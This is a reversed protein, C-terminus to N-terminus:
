GKTITEDLSLLVNAVTTWAALEVPDLASDVAFSGVELLAAADDPSAAFRARESEYLDLVADREADDPRRGTVLRFALESREDVADPSQTVIRQALAKAAEVFQPDNMLTLAQLPTNTRARRVVCAERTPADFVAMNPPPATRKWFTYLSRRYLAEGEDPMFTRTDSDPYAVAEWLGSPQYPRVSPGGLREVLLGSVALAQDRIMEADLRFRPGRSLLRNRPDRDLKRPSVTSSQQYTASSVILRHLAKLDWGSEVFEVALWDLLEPHSPWRGRTGFDESSAVLGVGFYQQWVRNVIVRATLPHEGSVLWRAFDLRTAREGERKLPPLFAPTGPAVEDGPQDYQGRKLVFAPRMRDAPREQMVLTRPLTSEFGAAEERASELEEYLARMEPSHRRRYHAQLAAREDEDRDHAPKVLLDTVLTEDFGDENKEAEFAFGYGGAYNVIKMLITNEGPRLEVTIRDQGPAAPRAVENEHVLEGNLWVKIADDSGLSLALTREDPSEIVRYAYTACQEGELENVVGDAFGTREIWAVAGEHYTTELNVSGNQTFAREPDFAADFANSDDPATFPGATWWAGSHIPGLTAHLADEESISLRVRGIAHQPFGTEHILTFRLETGGEFGFPERPTFVAVRRERKSEGDVAWGNTSDIVGDLTFDVLYPGNMQEHDAYAAVFEVRQTETLDAKSIALLEFESLVYNANYARGPGHYPLSDHTLAEVRVATIDTADTETVILYRDTPPNYGEALISHDDLETLTAGETSLATIPDLTRWRRAARDHNAAEWDSQAADIAPDPATFTTELSDIRAQMSELTAQDDPTPAVVVPVPTAINLDMANEEINNFFAFLEYFERQTLPDFKHDHCAACGATLGMWVTSTTEVRDVAYKMLYEANIAGGENTTVHARNFGTAILQDLTPDTRLDGALQDVTFEDFPQNANFANIVWDRYRWISRYNDLHLGHTDGFRAADLWYRAQHEGYRPSDLLREVVRDFANPDDDALFADIEDLSPPLGTLDFSVRRILAEKTARDNPTLGEDELRALIFHDIEHRPWDAQKVVPARPREPAIFAWHDQWPAGMDIWARLTAVELATLRKEMEPPPMHFNPDDSTVRALLASGKSDGPKIAVAGSELTALAGDRHDLRLGAQRAAEDFGHCEFCYDALIPRIDRNFEITSPIGANTTEHDNVSVTADDVPRASSSAMFLAAGIAASMGLGAVTLVLAAGRSRPM